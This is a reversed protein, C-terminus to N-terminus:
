IQPGQAEINFCHLCNQATSSFFEYGQPTGKYMRAFRALTHYTLEAEEYM